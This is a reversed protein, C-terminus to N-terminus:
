EKAPRLRNVVCSSAIACEFSWPSGDTITVRSSAREVPLFIHGGKREM